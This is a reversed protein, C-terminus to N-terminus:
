IPLAATAAPVVDTVSIVPESPVVSEAVADTRFTLEGDLQAWAPGAAYRVHQGDRTKTVLAVAELRAIHWHVTSAALDMRGAIDKQTLGDRGRILDAVQKTTPNRLAAVVYKRGNSYKGSTKDFYRRYRGERISVVLESRELVKLHYLLTSWGFEFKAALSNANIGAEDKIADYIRERAGHDLAQDKQVRAYLPILAAPLGGKLWVWAGGLAALALASLGVAVAVNGAWQKEVGPASVYTFDGQAKFATRDHEAGKPAVPEFSLAGRLVLEGARLPIAEGGATTLTGQAWPFSLVGSLDFALREAYLSTAAGANEVQLVGASSRFQLYRTVFEQHSGSGVWGAEPVYVSGAREEWGSSVELASSRGGETLVMTAQQVFGDVAGTVGFAGHPALLEYQAEAIEHEYPIRQGLVVGVPLDVGEQEAAGSRVVIPTALSGWRLDTREVSTLDDPVYAATALGWEAPSTALFAFGDHRTAVRLHADDHATETVKSETVFEVGRVPPMPRYTSVEVLALDLSRSSLAATLDGDDGTALLEGGLASTATSGQVLGPLRAELVLEGPEASVLPALSLVLGAAVALILAM